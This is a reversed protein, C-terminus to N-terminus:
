QLIRRRSRRRSYAICPASFLEKMNNLIFSMTRSNSFKTERNRRVLAKLDDLRDVDRWEPLVQIKYNYKRFIKMTREFVIDTSWPIGEFIEPLFASSKFGILYYGGDFAPGIVADNDNLDFAVNIVENTLDPIDSGVLLVRSFGESFTRCFANKMREGLNKGKQPIYSFDGGLWKSVKEKSEPPYFFIKFAHKGKRITDLFDLVFSRYLSVIMNDDMCESLRAKVMGREPYKIFILICNKGEDRKGKSKMTTLDNM